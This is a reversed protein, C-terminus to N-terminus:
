FTNSNKFFCYWRLYSKKHRESLGRHRRFDAKLRSFFSELCNTTSHINPDDIYHFMNPLANTILAMTRKLDKEAVTARPLTSVFKKYTEVWIAYNYLFLNKKEIDKIKPLSRLLRQLEKAADTKPYARLWRVGERQIHYLCRQIIVTRWVESIARIVMRHGDLILAQPRLGLANLEMLIPHVTKYSEKAVYANMIVRQTLADMLVILCGNKHFYTGDFFLYKYQSYNREVPPSQNLWYNKIRKLKSPSHGSIKSIQRISFSETVWLKFWAQEQKRSVDPRQWTFTKHCANCYFRQVGSRTKGHLKVQLSQCDPCHKKLCEPDKIL